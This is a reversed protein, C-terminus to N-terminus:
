ENKNKKQFRQSGKGARHNIALFAESLMPLRTQDPV